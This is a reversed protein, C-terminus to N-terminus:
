VQHFNSLWILVYLTEGPQYFLARPSEIDISKSCEFVQTFNTIMYVIPSTCQTQFFAHKLWVAVLLLSITWNLLIETM